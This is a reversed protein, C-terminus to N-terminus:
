VEYDRWNELNLNQSVGFKYKSKFRSKEMLGDKIKGIISIRKIGVM